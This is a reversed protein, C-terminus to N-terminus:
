GSSEPLTAKSCTQFLPTYCKTTVSSRVIGGLIKSVVQLIWVELTHGRGSQVPSWRSLDLLALLRQWRSDRVMVGLDQGLDLPARVAKIKGEEVTAANAETPATDNAQDWRVDIGM